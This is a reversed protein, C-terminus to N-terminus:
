HMPSFSAPVLIKNEQQLMWESSAPKPPWDGKAVSEARVTTREEMSKYPWLHYLKNGGTAETWLGGLPSYKERAPVAQEWRKIVEPLVGPIFTYIRLEYFGGYEQPSTWERMWPVSTLLASEMTLIVDDGKPPWAPDPNTAMDKRVSEVQALNDYPWIHVVQNLPGIETHWFGGLRSFKQRHELGEGFRREFEPVSGPRLTYTRLDYIL